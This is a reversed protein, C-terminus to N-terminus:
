ETWGSKYTQGNFDTEHSKALSNEQNSMVSSGVRETGSLIKVIFAATKSCMQNLAFEKEIRRRNSAGLRARLDSDTALNVIQEALPEPQGPPALFCYGEPGVAERIGPIDTGVVALGTAMCELVSNPCGEFQSSFVGLDVAQLLGSVDTVRGLFRVHKYLELDFALAKLSEHTTDFRGALLLVASRGASELRDVVVRWAKLLTAHDKYEHLNAVMCAVFCHKSLELQRRWTAGNSQPTALEIGNHIVQIRKSQVGYERRLFDAGHQSNSLFWPTQKAARKESKTGIRGRGEDRQNWICLKAGTWKWVLGCVVSSPIGYPMLVDPRLGRLLRGLNILSKLRRSRKAPWSWPITRWPIGYEDCMESARGPTSYSLVLVRAAHEGALYRALHLAQREAGGLEFGPVIFIVRAGNLTSGNSAISTTM